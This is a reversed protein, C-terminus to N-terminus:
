VQWGASRAASALAAEQQSTLGAPCGLVCVARRPARSENKPLVPMPNRHADDLIVLVSDKPSGLTRLFRFAAAELHGDRRPALLPQVGEVVESGTAMAREASRWVKTLLSTEELAAVSAVLADAHLLWCSWDESFLVACARDSYATSGDQWLCGIISRVLSDRRNRWTFATRWCGKPTKGRAVRDSSPCGKAVLLFILSADTVTAQAAVILGELRRSLQGPGWDQWARRLERRIRRKWPLFRKKRWPRLRRSCHQVVGQLGLLQCLRWLPRRRTQPRGEVHPTAVRGAVRQGCTGRTVPAEVAGLPFRWTPSALYPM